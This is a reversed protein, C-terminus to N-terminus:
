EWINWSTALKGLPDMPLHQVNSVSWGLSFDHEFVLLIWHSTLKRRFYWHFRCPLLCFFVRFYGQLAKLIPGPPGVVGRVTSFGMVGNIVITPTGGQQALYILKRLQWFFEWFSLSSTDIRLNSNTTGIFSIHKKHIWKCICICICICKCICLM